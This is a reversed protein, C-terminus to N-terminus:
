PTLVLLLEAPRATLPAAQEAATVRGRSHQHREAAHNADTDHAREARRDFLGAQFTQRPETALRAAIAHARRSRASTFGGSFRAVADLWRSAAAEVLHLLRAQAERVLVRIWARQDLSSPAPGVDVLLTILQSEVRRGSFDECSVRWVLV